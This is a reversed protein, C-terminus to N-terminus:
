CVELGQILACTYAATASKNHFLSKRLFPERAKCVEWWLTFVMAISGLFLPVLTGASVWPFIMGGWSIAILFCTASGIFMAGGFWDFRLVKEKFTTKKMKLKITFPVLVFGLACFPFNIYFIWRWTAHVSFLGGILPGLITGVAWAIQVIAVFAGRQSLPIIDSLIIYGLVFIGGAGIGQITRGSLLGPINEALCAILTGLTFFAVSAIM